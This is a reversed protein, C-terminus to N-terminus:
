VVQAIYLYLGMGKGVNVGRLYDSNTNMNKSENMRKLMQSIKGYSVYVKQAVHFETDIGCEM